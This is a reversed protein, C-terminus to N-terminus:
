LPALLIEHAKSNQPCFSCVRFEQIKSGELFLKNVCTKTLQKGKASNAFFYILAGEKEAHTSRINEIAPCIKLKFKAILYELKWPNQTTLVWYLM